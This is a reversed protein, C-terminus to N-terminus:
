GYVPIGEKKIIRTFRNDDTMDIVDVPKSLSFMLESYFAYFNGPEVGEVALDIDNYGSDARASSGFLLVRSVNFKKSTLEISKKDAASIM